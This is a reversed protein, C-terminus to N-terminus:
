GLFCGYQGPRIHFSFSPLDRTFREFGPDRNKDTLLVRVDTSVLTKIGRPHSFTSCYIRDRSQM